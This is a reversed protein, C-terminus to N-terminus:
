PTVAAVQRATRAGSWLLYIAVAVAGLLDAYRTVAPAPAMAVVALAIIVCGDVFTKAQYLQRQAAIIPNYHERSMVTYRRWFWGNTLLGLSAIVLGLYVNGGPQFNFLRFIAVAIMVLGSCIMAAAVSLAAVRSLKARAAAEMLPHRALHRFTWWSVFLAILEVSRRIFDALQTTSRGLFLAVGLAFPGWLSLLLAWLLTKQRSAIQEKSLPLLPTV